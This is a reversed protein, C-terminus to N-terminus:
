SPNGSGAACARMAQVVRSAGSGDVTRRARHSLEGRANPDQRLGEVVERLAGPELDYYWGLNVCAGARGMSRVLALQNDALVVLLMPVGLFALEWTTTGGASIALDAARMLEPVDRGARRAEIRPDGAEAVLREGAPNIPGVLVTVTLSPDEISRLSELVIQTTNTPDAGGMSVLIHNAVGGGPERPTCDRFERRLLAYDTGLLLRTQAARKDYLAEDAYANQNVVLSVSRHPPHGLDDVVLLRVGSEGVAAQFDQGFDYGDVVVWDAEFRAAQERVWAADEGTGARVDSLLVSLGESRLRARLGEALRASAIRVQGGTAVVEQALGIMRMVHGTGISGDGDTRILVRM